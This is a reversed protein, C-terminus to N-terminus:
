WNEQYKDKNKELQIQIYNSLEVNDLKEPAEIQEQILIDNKCDITIINRNIIINNILSWAYNKTGIANQIQVGGELITLFRKQTARKELYLAVFITILGVGSYVAPLMWNQLICYIFATSLAVFEILRVVFNKNTQIIKRNFFITLILILLGVLVYAIGAWNAITFEKDIEFHEKGGKAIYLVLPTFFAVAGMAILLFGSLLHIATIHSKKIGKSIIQIQYQM